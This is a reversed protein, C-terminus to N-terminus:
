MTLSQKGCACSRRFVADLNFAIRPLYGFDELLSFLPFFIAMPPLMVAIVWTLVRYIGDILVSQLFVPMGISICLDNLYAELSSFARSLLESPYNAGSITIWFVLALLLAMIPYGLARSMFIKDAKRDFSLDADKKVCESAIKAAAKIYASSIEDENKCEPLVTKFPVSVRKEFISNSVADMLDDIGTNYRASCAIVPVNLKDSLLDLDLIVGKKRAEDILNICLIVNDSINMIQLALFLNRELCTADCVIIVADAGGNLIFDAATEEDKSNTNLSYAGPIDVITYLTGRHICQGSASGVTKGAWNGTHQRQKTLANFITSKGVNPNGALAILASRESQNKIIDGGGCRKFTHSYGSRKDSIGCSRWFSSKKLM